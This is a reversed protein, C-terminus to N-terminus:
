VASSTAQAVRGKIRSFMVASICGCALCGFWVASSGYRDMTATGLWPGIMFALSFAMSFLGMYEGRRAAPSIDAVYASSGPASIMEGFTWVVVTAAVGAVSGVLALAGFGIGTLLASVVLTRRHPWHAMAANLPVELVIILVTNITLLLGYTAPSMGLENVLYLPMTSQIQFVVIAVPIIALLFYLFRRDGLAGLREAMSPSVSRPEQPAREADPLRFQVLALIGGSVLCTAGDIWFLLPFSVVALLGGVAPGISMGVNIALRNLAYAPKLQHPEVLVSYVAMSAPRFGESAFALLMVAAPLMGVGVAPFLLLVVGSALLSVRMVRLPGIRDSLWGALPVTILSGLGYLTLMLGAEVASFGLRQTLYLVLFPLAMTGARNVLTAAFLVWIERPLGVLSRWPHGKM